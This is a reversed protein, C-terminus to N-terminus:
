VRVAIRKCLAPEFSDARIQNRNDKTPAFQPTRNREVSGNHLRKHLRSSLREHISFKYAFIAEIMM